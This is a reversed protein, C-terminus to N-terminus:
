KLCPSHICSFIIRVSMAMADNFVIAGLKKRDITKMGESSNDDLIDQGFEAAIEKLANSGPEYVVHALKDADIYCENYFLLYFVFLSVISLMM